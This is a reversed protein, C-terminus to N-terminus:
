LCYASVIAKDIADQNYLQFLEDFEIMIEGDGHGYHENRYGLLIWNKGESSARM